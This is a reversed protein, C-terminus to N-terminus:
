KDDREEFLPYPSDFDGPFYFGFRYFVFELATGVCEFEDSPEAYQMAKANDHGDYRESRTHVHCTNRPIVRVPQEATQKLFNTHQQHWGCVRILEVGGRIRAAVYLVRVTFRNRLNPRSIQARIEFERGSQGVVILRAQLRRIRKLKRFRMLRSKADKPLPKRDALLEAIEGDTLLPAPLKPDGVTRAACRRNDVAPLVNEVFQRGAPLIPPVQRASGAPM